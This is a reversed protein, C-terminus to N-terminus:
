IRLPVVRSALPPSTTPDTLGSFAFPSDASRGFPIVRVLVMLQSEPEIRKATLAVPLAHDCDHGGVMASKSDGSDHCHETAAVPFTEACSHQCLWKVAPGATLAVLLTLAFVRRM